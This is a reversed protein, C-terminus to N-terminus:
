RDISIAPTHLEPWLLVYFSCSHYTFTRPTFALRKGLQVNLCAQSLSELQASTPFVAQRHQRSLHVARSQACRAAAEQLGQVLQAAPHVTSGHAGTWGHQRLWFTDLHLQNVSEFHQIQSLTLQGAKTSPARKNIGQELLSRYPEVLLFILFGCIVATDELM